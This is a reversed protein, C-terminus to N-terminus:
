ATGDAGASPAAALAPKAKPTAAEIAQAEQGLQDLKMMLQQKQQEMIALQFVLNGLNAATNTFEVKVANIPRPPEAKTMTPITPAEPTTPPTTTEESM